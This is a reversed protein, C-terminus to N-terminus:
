SFSVDRNRRPDFRIEFLFHPERKKPKLWQAFKPSAFQALFIEDLELFDNGVRPQKIWGGQRLVRNNRAQLDVIPTLGHLKALFIAVKQQFHASKRGKAPAAATNREPAIQGM